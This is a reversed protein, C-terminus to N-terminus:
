QLAQKLFNTARQREADLIKNVSSYDIIDEVPYNTEKGILLRNELNCLTLISKIRTGFGSPMYVFFQKNLNISFATGHFSNTIVFDAYHMLSLFDGPNAYRITKDALSEKTFDWSFTVVKLSKEKAIMRATEYIKKKDVINYPIYLLLYPENIIRESMFAKWRELDLMITPDILQTAQYGMSEVIVKASNERVSIHSYSALMKKVEQYEEIPLEDVGFSASYSVKKVSSPLGEFFYRKNLYLNHKSNWVQDSGTLYFDSKPCKEAFNDSDYIPSSMQCHAALYGNYIKINRAYNRGFIIRRVLRWPTKFAEIWYNSLTRHKPIYNVLTPAFGLEKLVESTAIAQLNSGFNPGRHITIFSITKM